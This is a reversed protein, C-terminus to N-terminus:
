RSVNPRKLCASVIGYSPGELSFLTAHTIDEFGGLKSTWRGDPLQRAAHTPMGDPLVFLAIKDFNPEVSSDGCIEYGLTRFAGIFALMSYERPANSPWFYENFPDPEWWSAIDNAAWAFCNYLPSSSSTIECDSGRLNPFDSPPWSGSMAM